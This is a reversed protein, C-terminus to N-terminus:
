ITPMNLSLASMKARGVNKFDFTSILLQNLFVDNLNDKLRLIEKTITSSMDSTDLSGVKISFDMEQLQKQISNKVKDDLVVNQIKIKFDDM